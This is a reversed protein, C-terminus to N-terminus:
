GCIGKFTYRLINPMYLGTKMWTLGHGEMIKGALSRMKNTFSIQSNKM